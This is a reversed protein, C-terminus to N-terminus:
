TVDYRESGNMVIGYHAKTVVKMAHECRHTTQFWSLLTRVCNNRTRERRARDCILWPVKSRSRTSGCTCISVRWACKTRAGQAAIRSDDTSRCCPLRAESPSIGGAGATAMNRAARVPPHLVTRMISLGRSRRPLPPPPTCPPCSGTCAHIPGLACWVCACVYLCPM